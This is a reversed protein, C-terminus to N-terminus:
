TVTFTGEDSLVTFENNAVSCLLRITNYRQTSAVSGGTGVTSDTNLFHIVQGANQAISFLGSGYGAVEIISGFPAVTPLTLTTLSASNTQYGHNVAMAQSTGAVPTWVFPNLTALANDIGHLNGQVSGNVATYNVPTYNANVDNALAIFNLRTGSFTTTPNYNSNGILYYCTGSQTLTGYTGAPQQLNVTELYLVNTASLNATSTITVGGTTNVLGINWLEIVGGSHTVSGIQSCNYVFTVGNSINFCCESSQQNIIWVTFLATNANNVVGNIYCDRFRIEGNIAGTIHVANNTTGGTDILCQFFYIHGTSPITVVDGGSYFIGMNQFTIFNNTSAFTISGELYTESFDQNGSGCININAQSATFTINETHIGSMFITSNSGATTIAHQLTAFPFLISGDNADSGNSTVYYVGTNTPTYDIFHTGNGAIVSNNVPTLAAIDTLNGALPQKNAALQDLASAVQVPTPSWNGPVAPTYGEYKAISLYTIVGSNTISLTSANLSVEDASLTTTAQDVTLTGSVPSSVMTPTMTNGSGSSTFTLSSYFNIANFAPAVDVSTVGLSNFTTAGAFYGSYHVEQMASSTYSGFYRNDFGTLADSGRGRMIVPGVIQNNNLYVQNSGSGGIAQFDITIGTSNILNLNQFGIRESGASFSASNIKIAGSSDIIKTPQQMSGVLFVWVPVELGTESYTGANINVVYPKTSTSDVITSLTHGITLFPNTVSGNGTSDNGNPDVYRVQADAFNASTSSITVDTRMAGPNDVATVTTSGAGIFNVTTEQAVATGNGEITQYGTAGGGSSNVWLQTGSNFVLTQGNTPSTIQVGGLTNIDGTNEITGGIAM